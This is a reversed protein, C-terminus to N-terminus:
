TVSSIDVCQHVPLCLPVDLGTVAITKPTQLGSLYEFTLVATELEIKCLIFSFYYVRVFPLYNEALHM